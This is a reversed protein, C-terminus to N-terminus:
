ILNQANNYFVVIASGIAYAIFVAMAIIIAYFVISFAKIAREMRISLIEDLDNRVDMLTAGLSATESGVKAAQVISSIMYSRGLESEKIIASFLDDGGQMSHIISKYTAVMCVNSTQKIVINMAKIIDVNKTLLTSLFYSFQATYYTKLTKGMVPASLLFDHWWWRVKQNNMVLYSATIVIATVVIVIYIGYKLIFNSLNMLVAMAWPMALKEGFLAKFQPIVFAVVVIAVVLVMILTLVRRMLIGKFGENMEAQKKKEKTYDVLYEGLNSSTEGAEIIGLFEEDFYKPFPAFIEVQSTFPKEMNEILRNILAKLTKNDENEGIFELTSKVTKGRSLSNGIMKILRQIDKQPVQFLRDFLKLSGLKNLISDKRADLIDSIQAHYGEDKLLSIAKESSEAKIELTKKNGFADSAKITFIYM